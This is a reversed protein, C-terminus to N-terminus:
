FSLNFFFQYSVPQYSILPSNIPHRNSGNGFTDSLSKAALLARGAQNVRRTQVEQEGAELKPSVADRLPSLNGESDSSTSSPPTPPLLFKATVM